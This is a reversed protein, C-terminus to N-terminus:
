KRQWGEWERRKLDGRKIKGSITKPLDTVFDVKRPYKYAATVRKVHEQLEKRLEECGSYGPSLIVFAKVVEGRLDDPSAVVAAEAVAPHEILASEVEFPGIRYGSTIIVDDARGIFWYYGDEDKYARDGTYYWDGKFAKSTEELDKWYEKFLGVPRTPKVRVAIHGEQGPPLEQGEDDVIAVDFGPTPKGMSGPKMPMCRYNAVVNVTETQGYGDYVKLGTGREWLSIVEPNLPEGAAVCHRLRSLRHGSLDELVLVRYVTPPACFTTVGYRELLDLTLKPDFKGRADHLFLAAGITWQGFLKGWGAKAWGMDSITWHLDTARLDQWFRATILHGIACSAQTHIVMKPYSVTGSTFYLLLPDDSRTHEVDDLKEAANALETEYSLWEDRGQGRVLMRRNLSTCEREAEEVKFSNEDDAVVMVSGSRSVRYGIDKSSCQTTAPIPIVGLKIMGVMIVYWEAIRPLMVLARDGKRLGLKRLVNAFRNSAASIDSFTLRNPNEGQGDVALLALKDPEREAWKDVVDVGFNFYEPVDIRFEKRTLEYDTMNPENM